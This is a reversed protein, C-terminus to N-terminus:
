GATASMTEVSPSASAPLTTTSRVLGSSKSVNSESTTGAPLEAAASIAAARGCDRTRLANLVVKAAVSAEPVTPESGVVTSM